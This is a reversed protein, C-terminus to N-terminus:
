SSIRKAIKALSGPGDERAKFHPIVFASHPIVLSSLSRSISHPRWHIISSGSLNGPHAISGFISRTRSSEINVIWGSIRRTATRAANRM